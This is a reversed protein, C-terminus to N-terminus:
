YLERENNLIVILGELSVKFHGDTLEQDYEISTNVIWPHIVIADKLDPLKLESQLHADNEIAYAIANEKRSLQQSAKRLTNTSHIWADQKTKRIYTSKVELVLLHNDMYCLLDVEGPDKGNVLDPQYSHVVTFGKTRLLDGSFYYL